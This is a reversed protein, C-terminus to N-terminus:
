SGAKQRLTKLLDAFSSRQILHTFQTKYNDVLSVGDVTVDYVAWRDQDRYLRYAVDVEAGKATVLLSDVSADVGDVREGLYQIPKGAYAEIKGLYSAAILNTFLRVFENQDAASLEDFRGGLSRRAMERFDFLSEAAQRIQARREATSEAKVQVTGNGTFVQQIAAQVTETPSAAWAVGVSALLMVVIFFLPTKPFSPMIAEKYGASRRSEILSAHRM